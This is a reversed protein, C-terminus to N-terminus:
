SLIFNKSYPKMHWSLSKGFYIKFLYYWCHNWLFKVQFNCSLELDDFVFGNRWYNEFTFKCHLVTQKTKVFINFHVLVKMGLLKTVDDLWITTGNESYEPYLSLFRFWFLYDDFCLTEINKVFDSTVIM